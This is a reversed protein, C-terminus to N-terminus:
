ISLLQFARMQWVRLPEGPWLRSGDGCCTSHIGVLSPQIFVVGVHLAADVLATLRLLHHVGGESGIGLVLQVLFRGQAFDGHHALLQEEGSRGVGRHIHVVM